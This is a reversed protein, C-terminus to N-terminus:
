HSSSEFGPDFNPSRNFDRKTFTMWFINSGTEKRHIMTPAVLKIRSIYPKAKPSFIVSDIKIAFKIAAVM